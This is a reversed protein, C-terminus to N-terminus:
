CRDRTENQRKKGANCATPRDCAKSKQPDTKKKKEAAAEDDKVQSPAEHDAPVGRSLCTRMSRVTKMDPPAKSSERKQCRKRPHQDRSNMM